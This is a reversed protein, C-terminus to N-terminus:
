KRGARFDFHYVNAGLAGVLRQNALKARSWMTQLYNHPWDEVLKFQNSARAFWQMFEVPPLSLKARLDGSMMSDISSSVANGGWASARVADVEPCVLWLLNLKPEDYCFNECAWHTPMEYPFYKVEAILIADKQM